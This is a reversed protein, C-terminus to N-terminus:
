FYFGQLRRSVTCSGSSKGLRAVNREVFCTNLLQFTLIRNASEWVIKKIFLAEDGKSLDGAHLTRPVCGYFLMKGKEKIKVIYRV